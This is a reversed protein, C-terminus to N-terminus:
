TVDEESLVASINADECCWNRSLANISMEEKVEKMKKAVSEESRNGFTNKALKRLANYAMGKVAMFSRGSALASLKKFQSTSLREGTEKDHWESYCTQCWCVAGEADTRRRLIAKDGTHPHEKGCNECLSM